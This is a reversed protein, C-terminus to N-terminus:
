KENEKVIFNLKLSQQNENLFRAFTYFNIFFQFKLKSDFSVFLAPMDDISVM